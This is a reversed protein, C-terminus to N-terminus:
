SPQWLLSPVPHRRLTAHFARRLWPKRRASPVPHRRFTAHFARRLWPKRRASPVPHRRFLSGYGWLAGAHAAPAKHTEVIPFRSWLPPLWTHCAARCRIVSVSTLHVGTQVIQLRVRTRYYDYPQVIKFRVLPSARRGGVLPCAALCSAPRRFSFLLRPRFFLCWPATKKGSKKDRAYM